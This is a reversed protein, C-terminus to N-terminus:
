ALRARLGFTEGFLLWGMLATCPTMLYFMSTVHTTKGQRLLWYLMARALGSL